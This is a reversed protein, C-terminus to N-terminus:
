FSFTLKDKFTKEFDNAFSDKFDIPVSICKGGLFIEQFCFKNPVIKTRKGELKMVEAIDLYVMGEAIKPSIKNIFNIIYEKDKM